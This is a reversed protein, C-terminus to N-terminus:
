DSSYERQIHGLAPPEPAIPNQETKQTEQTGALSASPTPSM